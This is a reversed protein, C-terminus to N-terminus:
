STGAAAAPEVAAEATAAARYSPVSVPVTGSSHVVTAMTMAMAMAKAMTLTTLGRRTRGHRHCSQAQKAAKDSGTPSFWRLSVLVYYYYQTTSQPLLM